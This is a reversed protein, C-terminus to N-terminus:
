RRIVAGNHVPTKAGTEKNVGYVRLYNVGVQPRVTIKWTDGSASVIHYQSDGLFKWYIKDVNTCLGRVECTSSSTHFVGDRKAPGGLQLTPDHVFTAVVSKDGDMTLSVTSSKGSVDGSWGAFTWGKDAVASLSLVTGFIYFNGRATPSSVITTTVTGSGITSTSLAYGPFAWVRGLPLAFFFM